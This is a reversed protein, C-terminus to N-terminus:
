PEDNLKVVVKANTQETSSIFVEYRKDKATVTMLSTNPPISGLNNAVMVLEHVPQQSDVKIRFTIPKRSLLQKDVILINNHYISVTDGDIQGNDYLDIRLDGADTTIQRVLQNTRQKLITPLPVMSLKQSVLRPPGDVTVKEDKPVVVQSGPNVPKSIPPNKKAPKPEAVPVKKATVAPTKKPVTNKVVDTKVCEQFTIDDMAFDNGCGGPANNRMVVVLDTESAPVTFQARHQTWHPYERRQIEGTTFQAVVRGGATQLSITLNPLLPFPCKETPRCVNMLWVGFQYTTNPKFGKVGTTFFVGENYSSNVLLMNGDVDGPTHDAQLAHWDGRFCGSTHSTYTYHGDSPCSTSVRNYHALSTQTVDKIEGKGFNMHYFPPKFTCRGTQALGKNGGVVAFCFWLVLRAVM